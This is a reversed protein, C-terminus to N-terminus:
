EKFFREDCIIKEIFKIYGLMELYATIEGAESPVGRVHGTYDVYDYRRQSPRYLFLGNPRPKMKKLEPYKESCYLEQGERAFRKVIKFRWQTLM